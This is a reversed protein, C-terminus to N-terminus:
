KRNQMGETIIDDIKSTIRRTLDIRNKAEEMIDRSEMLEELLDMNDSAHTAFGTKTDVLAHHNQTYTLTTRKSNRSERM